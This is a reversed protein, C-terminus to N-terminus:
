RFAPNWPHWLLVQRRKLGIIPVPVTDNRSCEKPWLLNGPWGLNLPLPYFEVAQHCSYNTYLPIPPITPCWRQYNACLSLPIIWNESHFPFCCSRYIIFVVQYLPSSWFWTPRHNEWRQREFWGESSIAPKSWMTYLTPAPLELSM